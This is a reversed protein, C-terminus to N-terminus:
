VVDAFTREMRRFFVVAGFLLVIVAGVSIAMAGLDPSAKGLLAWRFGEIVGTMPNLSYLLRWREPVLDVPYVIPSAWMWFQVMFPIAYQVDRYRVNLASLWLSVALSTLMALLMFLPLAVVGWTPSIGYWAMLGLMIIFAMAFDVLPALAASIPVILRPFYVKTILNASTVLSAGSRGVAQSFYTWPLIAAYAFIPYPLDDSPINAFNGFIISFIIMSMLPQLVAWGVGIATQKYRVKVDRWALFLLLERYEWIDGWGPRFLGKQPRIVVTPSVNSTAGATSLRRM